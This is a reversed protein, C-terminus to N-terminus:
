MELDAKVCSFREALRAIASFRFRPHNKMRRLYHSYVQSAAKHDAVAPTVDVACLRGATTCNENVMLVGLPKRLRRINSDFRKGLRNRSHKRDISVIRARAQASLNLRPFCILVTRSSFSGM